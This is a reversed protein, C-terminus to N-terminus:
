PLDLEVQFTVPGSSDSPTSATISLVRMTTMTGIRNPCKVLDGKKFNLFPVCGTVARLSATYTYRPSATEQLARSGVRNGQATSASTGSIVGMYRKGYATVGASNTVEIWGSLTRVLAKTARVPEGAYTLGLLNVGEQFWVTSSVDSGQEIFAQITGDPKIHVDCGLEEVHRVVDGLTTAGIPFPTEQLEPWPDGNSDDQGDFDPTLLDLGYVDQAGQAEDLLTRLIAGVSMGPKAGSVKHTKWNTTDTRRLVRNDTTNVILAALGCEPQITNKVEFAITHPGAPLAVSISQTTNAAQSTDAQKGDVYLTGEDDCQWYIRATATATLNFSTRFLNVDGIAPTTDATIKDGTRNGALKKPGYTAPTVWDGAQYWYASSKSMWGFFRADDQIQDWSGGGERFVVAYELLHRLGPATCTLDRQGPEAIVTGSTPVLEWAMVEVPAVGPELVMAAKCIGSELLDPDVTLAQALTSTTYSARGDGALEDTFSIGRAEPLTKDVRVGAATYFRLDVYGCVDEGAV